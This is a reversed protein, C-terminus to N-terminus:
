GAHGNGNIAKIENYEIVLDENDIEEQTKTVHVIEYTLKRTASIQASDPGNHELVQSPKGDLRDVAKEIHARAIERLKKLDVGM